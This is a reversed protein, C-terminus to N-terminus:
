SFNKLHGRGIKANKFNDGMQFPGPGKNTCDQIGKICLHDLKISIPWSIESIKLSKKKKIVYVGTFITEWFTAGDLGWPGHNTCVQIQVIDPLEQTFRLKEPKTTRSFIKLHNWGIKIIIEGKVLIQGKL